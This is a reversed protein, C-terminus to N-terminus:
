SHLKKRFLLLKSSKESCTQNTPVSKLTVTGARGWCFIYKFQIQNMKVWYEIVKNEHIFHLQSMELCAPLISCSHICKYINFKNICRDDQQCANESLNNKKQCSNGAPVNCVIRCDCTANSYPIFGCSVAQIQKKKRKGAAKNMVCQFSWARGTCIHCANSIIVAIERGEAQPARGRGREKDRLRERFDMNVDSICYESLKRHLKTSLNQM